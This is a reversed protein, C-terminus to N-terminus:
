ASCQQVASLEATGDLAGARQSRPLLVFVTGTVALILLGEAWLRGVDIEAPFGYPGSGDLKRCRYVYPDANLWARQGFPGPESVCPDTPLPSRKLPPFLGIAALLLLGVVTTTRASRTM